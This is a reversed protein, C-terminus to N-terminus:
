VRKIFLVLIKIDYIKSRVQTKKESINNVVAFILYTIIQFKIALISIFWVKTPKKFRDLLFYHRGILWIALRAQLFSYTGIM